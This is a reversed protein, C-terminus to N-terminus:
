KLPFIKLIELLQEVSLDSLNAYETDSFEDEYEDTFNEVFIYRGDKTLGVLLTSISTDGYNSSLSEMHLLASETKIEENEFDIEIKEEVISGIKTEKHVYDKEHSTIYESVKKRIEDVINEKIEKIDTKM